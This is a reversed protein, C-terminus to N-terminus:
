GHMSVPLLSTFDPSQSFSFSGYTTGDALTQVLARGDAATQAAASHDPLAATVISCYHSLMQQYSLALETGSPHYYMLHSAM